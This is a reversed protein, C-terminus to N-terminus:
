PVDTSSADAQMKRWEQVVLVGRAEARAQDCNRVDGPAVHGLEHAMSSCEAFTTGAPCGPHPWLVWVGGGICGAANVGCMTDLVARDAVIFVRGGRDLVPAVDPLAVRAADVLQRAQEQEGPTGGTVTWNHSACGAGLSAIAALLLPTLRV